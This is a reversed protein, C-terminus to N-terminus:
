SWTPCEKAAVRRGGSCLDVISERGGSDLASQLLPAIPLYPKLLNLGFQLADTIEDRLFSPFWNQEHLEIWQIRRVAARGRRYSSPSNLMPVIPAIPEVDISEFGAGPSKRRLM